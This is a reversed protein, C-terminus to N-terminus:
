PRPAGRMLRDGAPGDLYRSFLDLITGWRRGDPAFAQARARGPLTVLVAGPPRQGPGIEVLGMRTAFDAWSGGQPLLTFRESPVGAERGALSLHLGGARASGCVERMVPHDFITPRQILAQEQIAILWNAEAVLRRRLALLVEGEGRRAARAQVGLARARAYLDFSRALNGMPDEVRGSHILEAVRARGAGHAEGALFAHFSVGIRAYIDTNGEVLADRVIGIRALPDLSGALARAVGAHVVEGLGQEAGAAVLGEVLHRVASLGRPIATPSRAAHAMTMVDELMRVWGGVQRSAYKAFTVWSSLPPDGLYAAFARDLTRYGDTVVANAAAGSMLTRGPRWARASRVDLPAAPVHFFPWPASAPIPAAGRAYRETASSIGESQPPRGLQSDTNSNPGERPTTV